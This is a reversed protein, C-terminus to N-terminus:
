QDEKALDGNWHNVVRFIFFVRLYEQASQWVSVFSWSVRLKEMEETKLTEMLQARQAKFNEIDSASFFVRSEALPEDDYIRKM